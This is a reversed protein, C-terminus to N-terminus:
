RARAPMSPMANRTLRKGLAQWRAEWWFTSAHAAGFMLAYSIPRKLLYREATSGTNLWGWIMLMHYLYLAYSIKAVYAAVGSELVSTLLPPRGALLVGVLGAALYPRLYPLAGSEPFCSLYWLAGVGATAVLAIAPRGLATRLTEGSRAWVLALMGGALIEDVRLHTAIDLAAGESIRLGTTAVAAPIVLWVGRRGLVAVAFAIALYFHVEVCLSWLHSMSLNHLAGPVYNSVYLANALLVHVPPQMVVAIVLLFMWLAPVIRMLRRVLFAGPTMGRELISVILFGSLVFFLSLGAAATGENLRLPGLHLPLTHGALVLLISLARVGDLIRIHEM